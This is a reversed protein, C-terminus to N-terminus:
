PQQEQQRQIFYECKRCFDKGTVKFYILSWCGLIGWTAEPYGCWKPQPYLIDCQEYTLKGDIKELYEEKTLKHFYKIRRM